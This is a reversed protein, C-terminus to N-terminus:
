TAPLRSFRSVSAAYMARWAGAAAPAVSASLREKGLRGVRQACAAALREGDHELRRVAGCAVLHV